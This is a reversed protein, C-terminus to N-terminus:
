ISTKVWLVPRVGVTDNSVDVGTEYVTGDPYVAKQSLDSQGHGRLWWWKGINRDNINPLIEDLENQSLVYVKDKTDPGNQNDWRPDFNNFLRVIQIKLKEQFSFAKDFFDRNLWKRLDSENWSAGIRMHHFYMDEIVDDALLMSSFGETRVVTWSLPKDNYTGFLVKNGLQHILFDDCKKLYKESDKYKGLDAFITRAKNVKEESFSNTCINVAEVYCKEQLNTDIM